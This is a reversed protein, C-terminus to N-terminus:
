LSGRLYALNLDTSLSPAIQGRKIATEIQRMLRGVEPGPRLGFESMIESGLGKRLLAPGADKMAIVAARHKLELLRADCAHRKAAHKTTVDARALELADTFQAGLQRRLRRVASDTWEPLYAEVHGLNRILFRVQVRVLGDLETRRAARNFLAASMFEHGHFSIKGDHRAFSTVKGTDHFLAAWRLVRRPPAQAVVQKTHEWLNKHGTDGGGFGVMASVEPYVRALAGSDALKELEVDAHRSLLATEIAHFM